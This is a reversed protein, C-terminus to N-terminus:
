FGGLVQEHACENGNGVLSADDFEGLGQVAEAHGEDGGAAGGLQQGVLAQRHGLHGLDSRKGLHEISAHLGQVGLHVATQQRPAVQGLVHRCELRVADVGNVQQDDVEVRKFGSDGLGAAGQVVRDLVDVDAARGHHAARGLVPFVHRHQGVRRLVGAHDVFELGTALDAVRRAEGQRDGREVADAVVVAGDAVVEGADREVGTSGHGRAALVGRLGVAAEHFQLVQTVALVRVLGGGEVAVQVGCGARQHRRLLQLALLEAVVVDGIGVRGPFADLTELHGRAHDHFM